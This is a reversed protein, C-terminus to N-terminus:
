LRKRRRPGRRAVLRLVTTEDRREERQVSPWLVFTFSIRFVAKEANSRFGLVFPETFRESAAHLNFQHNSSKAAVALGVVGIVSSLLVHLTHSSGTFFQYRALICPPHFHTASIGFGFLKPFLGAPGGPGLRSRLRAPSTPFGAFAAATRHPLLPRGAPGAGAAFVPLSPAIAFTALRM